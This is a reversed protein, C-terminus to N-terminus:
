GNRIKHKRKHVALILLSVVFFQIPYIVEDISTTDVSSSNTMTENKTQSTLTTTSSTSTVISTTAKFNYIKGDFACIFLENKQDTGFSAINLDTDIIETNVPDNLGNYELMWIRGSGFDAYVYAGYLEPVLKGRYVYGGTITNGISHSYEHIPLELGTADCNTSPSYCSSGEMTNWGYNKGSQIIDIEEIRNQGVDGSWLWGTIPDFSFRWPNRLGYAYIEERFGNGNNYFPNSVPIGYNEGTESNDVDIRLISGLLTMQNQGHGQPDGGSGGDGLSIYLYGDAGFGIQGGNHNSFPQDVELIVQESSKDGVDPNISNVKFRSIVSQDNATYDVFFFGNDKFNPHFALGLLGMENGSDDVLDTIDLFLTKSSTIKDNLFSYIRGAQEVVFIRNTDDDPTQLDVPRTFSLQPFALQIQYNQNSNVHSFTLVLAALLMVVLM